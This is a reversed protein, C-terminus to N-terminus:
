FAAVARVAGGYYKYSNSTNGNSFDVYWANGPGYETSSWYWTNSFQSFVGLVQANHLPRPLGNDDYGYGLRHYWYMRM